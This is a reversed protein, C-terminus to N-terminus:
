HMQMNVYLMVIGNVILVCVKLHLVHNDGDINIRKTGGDYHIFVIGLDVMGAVKGSLLM